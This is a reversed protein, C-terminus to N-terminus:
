MCDEKRCERHSGIEGKLVTISKEWRGGKTQYVQRVDRYLILQCRPCIIAVELDCCQSVNTM